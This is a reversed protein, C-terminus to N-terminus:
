LMGTRGPCGLLRQIQTHAATSLQKRHPISSEAAVQHTAKCVGIVTDTCSAPPSAAKMDGTGSTDEKLLESDQRLWGAREKM